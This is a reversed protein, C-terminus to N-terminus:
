NINEMIFLKIVSSDVVISSSFDHYKEENLEHERFLKGNSSILPFSENVDNM